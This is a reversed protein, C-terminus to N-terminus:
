ALGREVLREYLAQELMERDDPLDHKVSPDIGLTRYVEDMLAWGAALVEDPQMSDHQQRGESGRLLIAVEELDEGRRSAKEWLARIVQTPSFGISALAEDGAAKLTPSLRANIQATATM